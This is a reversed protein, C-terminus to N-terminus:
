AASQVPVVPGRVARWAYELALLEEKLRPIKRGKEKKAQRGIDDLIDAASRHGVLAVGDWPGALPTPRYISMPGGCASAIEFAEEISELVTDEFFFLLKGVRMYNRM